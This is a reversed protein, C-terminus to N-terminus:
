TGAEYAFRVADDRLSEDIFAKRYSQWREFGSASDLRMRASSGAFTWEGSDIEMSDSWLTLDIAIVLTARGVLANTASRYSLAIILEISVSVLGLVNVSGGIRLYGTIRVRRDAQLEFRVGGLAHVEGRAIFFNIAVLAGFELAAEFTEIGRQSLAIEAYGTGGFMLVSLQFPVARSSFGLSVSPAGQFPVRIGASFAINSLVFAGSAIPPAPLRYRVSIASSSIDVFKGAAGFTGMVKKFDEIFKLDGDFALAPGAMTLDPPQGNTQRYKVSQFSLRLVSGTPPFALAFNSVTCETTSAAPSQRVELDLRTADNTAFGLHGKLKVGMWRMTIQPAGDATLASTIQPPTRLDALLERLPFGFLTAGPGFLNEPRFERDVPGLTRSIANAVSQPAVLGGSRDSNKTFDINISNTLALPIDNSEGSLFRPDFRMPQPASTGLLTRLAPLAVSLATCKPRYGDTLGPSTDVGAITVGHVEHVDAAQRTTAGVLDIAVGPLPVPTSGYFRALEITLAADNLSDFQPSHDIVFVLPLRFDVTGTLTTARVAFDINRGSGHRLWHHTPFTTGGGPPFRVPITREVDTYTSHLIEVQRFPFERRVRGDPSQERVQETITLVRVTRLVAAGGGTATMDFDRTTFDELKARHGLPYLAGSMKFRVVMDRGLVCRHDWEDNRWRGIVDLTGGIASLELRTLRAAQERSKAVVIERQASILPIGFAPDGPLHDVARLEITPELPKRIRTRWMGTVGGRTGPDVLHTCELAGTGDVPAVFLRAPIELRTGDPGTTSVDGDALAKLIGAVTLPIKVGPAVTVTVRSPGSLVARWAPVTGGGAAGSPLNLPAPTLPASTEEALHQPAFTAVLRANQNATLIARGADVSATMGTWGIGLVIHDPARVLLYMSM